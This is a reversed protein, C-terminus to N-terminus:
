VVRNGIYSKCRPSLAKTTILYWYTGPMEHKKIGFFWRKLLSGPLYYYIPNVSDVGSGEGAKKSVAM